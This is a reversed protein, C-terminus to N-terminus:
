IIRKSGAYLQLEKGVRKTEVVEEIMETTNKDVFSFPKYKTFTIFVSNQPKETTALSLSNEGRFLAIIGSAASKKSTYETYQALSFLCLMIESITYTTIKIGYAKGMETWEKIWQKATIGRYGKIAKSGVVTEYNNIIANEICTMAIGRDRDRHAILDCFEFISQFRSKDVVDMYNRIFILFGLIDYEDFLNNEILDKYHDFIKKAKNDMVKM